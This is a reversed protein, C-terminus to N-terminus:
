DWGVIEKAKEALTRKHQLEHAALTGTEMVQQMIGRLKDTLGIMLYLQHRGEVDRAPSNQWQKTIEQKLTEYSELYIENELVEKAKSGREMRETIDM